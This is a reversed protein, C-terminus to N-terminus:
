QGDARALFSLQLAAPVVPAAFVQIVLWINRRHAMNGVLAYWQQTSKHLGMAGALGEGHFDHKRLYEFCGWERVQLCHWGSMDRFELYPIAPFDQGTLFKAIRLDAAFEDFLSLQEPHYCVDRQKLVLTPTGQIPVIGLSRKHANLFAISPVASEAAYHARVASTWSPVSSVAHIGSVADTLRFSEPRSDQPNAVLSLSAQHRARLPNDTTLPYVRVLGGLTESVGAMCVRRGYKASEEPVTRGLVIFDDIRM